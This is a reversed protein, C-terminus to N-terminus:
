AALGCGGKEEEVVEGPGRGRKVRTLVDLCDCMYSYFM